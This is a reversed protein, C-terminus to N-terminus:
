KQCCRILFSQEPNTALIIYTKGDVTVKAFEVGSEKSMISVDKMSFSDAETTIYDGKNRMKSLASKLNDPIDVVKNIDRGVGIVLYDSLSRAIELGIGSTAGLVLATKM